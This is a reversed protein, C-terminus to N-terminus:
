KNILIKFQFIIKFHRPLLQNKLFKKSIFRFKIFGNGIGNVM